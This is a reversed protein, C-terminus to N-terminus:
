QKEGCKQSMKISSYSSFCVLVFNTNFEDRLKLATTYCSIFTKGGKRWQKHGIHTWLLINIQGTITSFKFIFKVKTSPKTKINKPKYFTHLYSFQFNFYDTYLVIWQYLASDPKEM